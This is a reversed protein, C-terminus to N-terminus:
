DKLLVLDGCRRSLAAQEHTADVSFSTGGRGDINRWPWKHEQVAMQDRKNQGNPVEKTLLRLSKSSCISVM